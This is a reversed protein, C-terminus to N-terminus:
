NDNARYAFRFAGSSAINEFSPQTSQIRQDSGADYRYSREGEGASIFVHRPYSKWDAPVALTQSDGVFIIDGPKVDNVDTIKTFGYNKLLSELNGGGYLPYGKTTPQRKTNVGADYLTWGVFRDCSVIRETKDLAPNKSADGYKYGNDRMYDANIKAHYLIKSAKLTPCPNYAINGQSDYVVFGYHLLKDVAAKASDIDGYTKKLPSLERDNKGKADTYPEKGYPSLIRYTVADPEEDTAPSTDDSVTIEDTMWDTVTDSTGNESEACACVTMIVSILLFLSFIKKM